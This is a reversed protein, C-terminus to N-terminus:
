GPLNQGTIRKLGSDAINIFSRNRLRIRAHRSRQVGDPREIYQDLGAAESRTAGAPSEKARRADM